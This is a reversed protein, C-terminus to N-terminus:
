PLQDEIAENIAREVAAQNEDAAPRLYPRAPQNYRRGRSDVDNFGYEQRAAYELNTGITVQADRGTVEPGPVDPADEAGPALMKHGGIHISRRLTGTKHPARQKAENQIILAGAVLARALMRGSTARSTETLLRRAIRDDITIDM